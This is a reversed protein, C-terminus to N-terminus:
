AHELNKKLAAIVEDTSVVDAYKQQMDFLNIAHTTIGRDFVCEEPVIVNFNYSFADVVSARVCGSTTTGAVILTDVNNEVLYSILPTGFFASPKKKSIVIEGPVPEIEKVVKTGEGGELLTPHNFVNGKIATRENSNHKHGEIITYYVPIGAERSAELVRKINPVAKWADAGCSTPYKQISQEIDEAEEGTFGYQVDIIVLAPKNGIGTMKGLGAGSYIKLDRPDLYQDWIRKTM